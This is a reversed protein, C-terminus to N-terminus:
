PWTSAAATARTVAAPSAGQYYVRGQDYFGFVSYYFPLFHNKSQGLAFRLEM